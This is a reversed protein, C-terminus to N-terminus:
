HLLSECAGLCGARCRLDQVMFGVSLDGLGPTGFSSKPSQPKPDSKPDRRNTPKGLLPKQRLGLHGAAQVVQHSCSLM